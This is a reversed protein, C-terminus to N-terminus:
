DKAIPSLANNPAPWERVQLDPPFEAINKILPLRM